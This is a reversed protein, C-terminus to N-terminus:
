KLNALPCAAASLFDCNGTSYLFMVTASEIATVTESSFVFVGVPQSQM